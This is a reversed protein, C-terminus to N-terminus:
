EILNTWKVRYKHGAGRGMFVGEARASAFESGFTEVMKNKKWPGLV